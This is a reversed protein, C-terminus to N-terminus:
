NVYVVTYSIDHYRARQVMYDAEKGATYFSEISSTDSETYVVADHITKGDRSYNFKVFYIKGRGLNAPYMDTYFQSDIQTYGFPATANAIQDITKNRVIMGTKGSFNYFYGAALGVQRGSYGQPAQANGTIAKSSWIFNINAGTIEKDKNYTVQVIDGPKMSAVMSETNSTSYYKEAKGDAFLKVVYCEEGNINVGRTLAEVIANASEKSVEAAGGEDSLWLIFSAGEMDVDYGYCEITDGNSAAYEKIDTNTAVSYYKENFKENDSKPVKLIVCEPAMTFHPYFVDNKFFLKGSPAPSNGSYGQHTNDDYLVPRADTQTRTLFVKSGDTNERASYLKNIEGKSNTSYKIVRMLASDAELKDLGILTDEASYPTDTKVNEALSYEHMVADTGYVMLKVEDNLGGGFSGAAVLFGYQIDSVFEKIYIVSDNEGINLIVESGLKVKSLEKITLTYYSSLTYEEGSIVIKGQSTIADLSGGKKKNYRIIECKKGDKSIVYGVADDEKLDSIDIPTGDDERLSYKIGSLDFIGNRKYKDYLKEDFENVSGIVGYEVETLEIVDIRGNGDNDILSISGSSPNIYSEPNPTNFCKGNYLLTYDDEMKHKIESTIDSSYANLANGSLSLADKSTYNFVTNDCVYIYVIDKAQNNKYFIRVKRGIFDEFGNLRYNIDDVTIFGESSAGSISRIGTYENASVVGEAMHISHYVSLINKGETVTYDSSAGFSTEELIDAICAEFILERAQAHTLASGNSLKINEGIGAENAAKIYGAPYGGMLEAKKGYGAASVAIKVAQEYTVPSSPYFLDVNSILGLQAAYAIYSGYKSQVDVDRFSSSVNAGQPMNLTMVMAAVFEERTTIDGNELPFDPCITKMLNLSNSYDDGYLSITSAVANAQPFCACIFVAAMLFSLLRLNKM